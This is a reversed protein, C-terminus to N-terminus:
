KKRYDTDKTGKINNCGGLGHCLPQINTIDNSGGRSLPIVHDPVLKRGLKKLQKEKLGCCLCMNNFNKKLAFWEESSYTGGVKLARAKRRAENARNKEPNRKTWESHKENVYEKHTKQWAAAIKARAVKHTRNWKVAKAIREVKNEEYKQKMCARCIRQKVGPPIYTNEPTFEHGNKCHTKNTNQNFGVPNSM